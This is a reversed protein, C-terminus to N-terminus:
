GNRAEPFERIWYEDPIRGQQDPRFASDQKVFVPVGAARCQDAIDTIWGVECERRNPGSEGGVIVWTVCRKGPSLLYQRQPSFLGWPQQLVLPGLLPECSVFRVRAPTECLVPVRRDLWEQNEASVGLWINPYGEGWDAPLNRAIRGHRKTLIQYTHQPTRRIIDWAEDRWPDADKHFWDGWSCTFIMRPDKWRLPKDFTTKGRVVKEPDQGYKRKETFMYCNDCGASVHTCGHWPNWTSETWAIGTQEGM